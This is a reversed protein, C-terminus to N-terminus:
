ETVGQTSIPTQSTHLQQQRFQPIRTVVCDPNPTYSQRPGILLIEQFTLFDRM